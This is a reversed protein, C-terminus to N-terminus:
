KWPVAEGKGPPMLLWVPHTRVGDLPLASACDDYLDGGYIKQAKRLLFLYDAGETGVLSSRSAKKEFPWQEKGCIIGSLYDFARLILVQGNTERHWLDV